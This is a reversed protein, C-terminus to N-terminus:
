KFEKLILRQHEKNTKQFGLKKYLGKAAENDHNVLLEVSEVGQGKAFNIICNLLKTGIGKGRSEEEVFVSDLVMIKAKGNHYITGLCSCGTTVFHYQHTVKLTHLM